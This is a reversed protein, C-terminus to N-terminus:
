RSIAHMSSFWDDELRPLDCPPSSAYPRSAGVRDREAPQRSRARPYCSYPTAACNPKRNHTAAHLLM